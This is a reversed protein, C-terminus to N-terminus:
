FVLVFMKPSIQKTSKVNRGITVHGTQSVCLSLLRMAMKNFVDFSVNSARCLHRIM